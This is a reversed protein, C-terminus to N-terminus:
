WNPWSRAAPGGTRAGPHQLLQGAFAARLKAWFLLPLRRADRLRAWVLRRVRRRPQERCLPYSRLFARRRDVYEGQKEWLCAFDGRLLATSAGGGDGAGREAAMQRRIVYIGNSRAAALKTTELLNQCPRPKITPRGVM